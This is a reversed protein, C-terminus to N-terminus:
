FPCVGALFSLFVSPFWVSLTFISWILLKLFCIEIIKLLCALSVELPPFSSGSILVSTQDCLSGVVTASKTRLKIQQPKCCRHGSQSLKRDLGTEEQSLGLMPCRHRRLLVVACVLKREGPDRQSFLLPLLFPLPRTIRM